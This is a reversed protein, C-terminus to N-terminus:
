VCVERQRAAALLSDCIRNAAHGDGYPNAANAMREYSLRNEVLATVHTVIEQSRTGILRAAGAAVAEPRETTQRLVLVPKGLSPAEEQLGGSDTLVLDARNLLHAFSCYDLPPLLTIGSVNGLRSRVPGAVNPNPHVPYVIHWQEGYRAAISQLAECISRIPAGFNERRHATVLLVRKNRAVAPLIADLNFPRRLVEFLADIVPNGTVHIQSDSIGERLLNARATETPAWHMDAVLGAIRRNIEEPFPEHKNYTRLGAEVHGVKTGRHYAALSSVMATTTDGQVLVWDPCEKEMLPDLRLFIRGAVESPSQGKIMVDLDYDTQLGFVTLVEDLMSRHQATACLRCNFMEPRYRMAKVVPAMKIAEPRTGIVIMVKM